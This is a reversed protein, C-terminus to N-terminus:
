LLLSGWYQQKTIIKNRCFVARKIEMMPTFVEIMKEKLERGAQSVEPSAEECIQLLQCLSRPQLLGFTPELYDLGATLLSYSLKLLSWVDEESVSQKSCHLVEPSRSVLSSLSFSELEQAAELREQIMKVGLEMMQRLNRQFDINLWDLGLALRQLAPAM